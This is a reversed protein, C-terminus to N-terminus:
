MTKSLSFYQIYSTIIVGMMKLSLLVSYFIPFDPVVVRTLSIKHGIRTSWTERLTSHEHRMNNVHMAYYMHFLWAFWMCPSVCTYKSITAVAIKRTNIWFCYVWHILQIETFYQCLSWVNVSIDESNRIYYHKLLLVFYKLITKITSITCIRNDCM